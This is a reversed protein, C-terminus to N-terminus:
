EQVVEKLAKTFFLLVFGNERPCHFPLYPSRYHLVVSQLQLISLVVGCIYSNWLNNGDSVQALRQQLINGKPEKASIDERKEGRGGHTYKWRSQGEEDDLCAGNLRIMSPKVAIILADLIGQFDTLSYVVSHETCHPNDNGDQRYTDGPRQWVSRVEERTTSGSLWALQYKCGALLSPWLLSSWETDNQRKCNVSNGFTWM